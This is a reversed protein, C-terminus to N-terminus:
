MTKHPGCTELETNWPGPIVPTFIPLLNDNISNNLNNGSLVVASFHNSSFLHPVVTSLRGPLVGPSGWDM